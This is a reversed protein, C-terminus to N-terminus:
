GSEIRLGGRDGDTRAKRRIDDFLGGFAADGGLCRNIAYAISDVAQITASSRSDVFEIKIVTRERGYPLRPRAAQRCMAREMALRHGEPVNDSIIRLTTVTGQAEALWGLREVLLKTTREALRADTTNRKVTGSRTISIGFLAVDSDCVIGVVKRMVSMKEETTMSGLPSGGRGHFMDGAHLEWDAPDIRPVLELKLRRISEALRAIAAPSGAICALVFRGPEGRAGTRSGSEDVYAAWEPGM